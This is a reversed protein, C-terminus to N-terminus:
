LPASNMLGVLVIHNWRFRLGLPASMLKEDFNTIVSSQLIGACLWVAGFAWLQRIIFPDLSHTLNHLWQSWWGGSGELALEKEAELLTSFCASTSCFSFMRGLTSSSHWQLRARKEPPQKSPPAPASSKTGPEREEQKVAETPAEPEKKVEVAICFCELLDSGCM